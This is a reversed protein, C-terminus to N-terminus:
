TQPLIPEKKWPGVMAMLNQTNPLSPLNDLLEDDDDDDADDDYRLEVNPAPHRLVAARPAYTETRAVAQQQTRNAHYPLPPARRAYPEYRESVHEQEEDEESDGATHSRDVYRETTSVQQEEEQVIDYRSEMRAFFAKRARASNPNQLYIQALLKEQAFKHKAEAVDAIRTLVLTHKSREVNKLEAAKRRSDASTPTNFQHKNYGRSSRAFAIEKAKKKGISPRPTILSSDPVRDYNDAAASNMNQELSAFGERAHNNNNRNGGRGERQQNFAALLLIITLCIWPVPLEPM